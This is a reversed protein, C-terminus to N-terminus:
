EASLGFIALLDAPSGQGTIEIEICDYESLTEEVVGDHHGEVMKYTVPPWIEQRLALRTEGASEIAVAQVMGDVNLETFTSDDTVPFGRKWHLGVLTVNIQLDRRKNDTLNLTYSNILYNDQPMEFYTIIYGDETVEQELLRYEGDPECEVHVVGRSMQQYGKPINVPWPLVGDATVWEQLKELSSAHYDMGSALTGTYAGVDEQWKQVSKVKGNTRGGMLDMLRPDSEVRNSFSEGNWDVMGIGGAVAGTVGTALLLAIALIYKAKHWNRVKHEDGKRRALVKVQHEASLGDNRAARKLRERFEQETM